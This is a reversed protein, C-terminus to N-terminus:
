GVYRVRPHLGIQHQRAQVWQRKVEVTIAVGGSLRSQFGPRPVIPPQFANAALTLLDSGRFWVKDDRAFSSLRM